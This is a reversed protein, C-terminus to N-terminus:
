PVMGLRALAASLRNLDAPGADWELGRLRALQSAVGELWTRHHRSLRGPAAAKTLDRWARKAEESLEAPPQGIPKGEDPHPPTKPKRGAGPRAGGSNPRAGGSRGKVGAM